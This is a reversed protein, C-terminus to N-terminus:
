CMTRTVDVNVATDPAQKGCLQAFEHSSSKRYPSACLLGAETLCVGVCM